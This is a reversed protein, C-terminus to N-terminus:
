PHCKISGEHICAQKTRRLARIIETVSRLFGAAYDARLAKLVAILNDLVGIGISNENAKATRAYQSGPPALREIAGSIRTQHQLSEAPSVLDEAKRAVKNRASVAEADSILSDMMDLISKLSTDM